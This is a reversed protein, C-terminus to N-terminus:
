RCELSVLERHWGGSAAAIRPPPACRPGAPSPGGQAGTAEMSTVPTWWARTRALGPPATALFGSFGIAKWLLM